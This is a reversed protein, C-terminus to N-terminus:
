VEIRFNTSNTKRKRTEKIRSSYKISNKFELINIYYLLHHLNIYIYCTIILNKGFDIFKEKNKCM